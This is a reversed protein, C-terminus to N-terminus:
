SPRFRAITGLEDLVRDVEAITNYHVFGIRVLGTSPKDLRHMVEYAYYDGSWVFCGAAGLKRSVDAPAVGTVDIAFTPTRDSMETHGFLRIGPITGIGSLFRESLTTEHAGIAGYASAIQARRTEGTGLSAIYDVAG